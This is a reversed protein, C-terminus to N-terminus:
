DEVSLSRMIEELKPAKNSPAGGTSQYALIEKRTGTLKNIDIMTFEQNTNIYSRWAAELSNQDIMWQKIDFNLTNLGHHAVYKFAEYGIASPNFTARHANFRGWPTPVSSIQLCPFAFDCNNIRELFTTENDCFVSDIDVMVTPRKYHKFLLFGSLYRSFALYAKYEKVLIVESQLTVNVINWKNCIQNFKHEIINLDEYPNLIVKIWVHSKKLLKAFSRIFVEAFYMFYKFDCSASFILKPNSIVSRDPYNFCPINAYIANDLDILPIVRSQFLVSSMENKFLPLKTKYNAEEFKKIAQDIYGDRYYNCARLFGISAISSDDTCTSELFNIKDGIHKSNLRMAVKVWIALNDVYNKAHASVQTLSWAADEAKSYRNTIRYLEVRLNLSWLIGEEHLESILNEIANLEDNLEYSYIINKNSFASHIFSYLSNYLMHMNSLKLSSSLYKYTEISSNLIDKVKTKTGIMIASSCAKPIVGLKIEFYEKELLDLLEYYDRELLLYDAFKSALEYVNLNSEKLGNYYSQKVDNKRKHKQYISALRNWFRGNEPCQKTCENALDCASSLDGSSEKIAIMYNMSSVVHRESDILEQFLAEATLLNGSNFENQAEIFKDSTMHKIVLKFNSCESVSLSLAHNYLKCVSFM